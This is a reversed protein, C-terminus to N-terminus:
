GALILEVVTKSGFYALLLFIFGALTWRVAVRGRWGWRWHGFLLTGFLLWAVVSLVTKHVLHQALLDEVYPLGSLLAISLVLFGLGIMQFLLREMTELPALLRIFGGPHHNHLHSEQIWLLLAQVVAISLLSYALVSLMIHVELGLPLQAALYVHHDSFARLALTMAAVPLILIALNEVPKRLASLLLLLAVVWGVLSMVSFISLDTGAPTFLSAQLAVGHLVVGVLGAAILLKRNDLSGPLRGALRLALLAAVVLYVTIGALDTFVM